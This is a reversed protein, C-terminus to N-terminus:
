KGKCNGVDKDSRVFLCEMKGHTQKQLDFLKSFDEHNLKFCPITSQLSENREAYLNLSESLVKNNELIVADLNNQAETWIDDTLIKIDSHCMENMSLASVNIFSDSERKIKHVLLWNNYIKKWKDEAVNPLVEFAISLGNIKIIDLSSNKWRILLVAYFITITYTYFLSALM